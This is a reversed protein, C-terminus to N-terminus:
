RYHRANSRCSANCYRQNTRTAPLPMSCPPNECRRMPRFDTILLYFQLYMASLLDPCEWRRLMSDAGSLYDRNPAQSSVYEKILGFLVDTDVEDFSLRIRSVRDKVVNKLAMRAIQMAARPKNSLDLFTEPNPEIGLVGTSVM